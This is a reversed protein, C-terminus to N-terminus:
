VCGKETIQDKDKAILTKLAKVAINMSHELGTEYDYGMIAGSRIGRISSVIFLASAEMESGMVNAKEWARWRSLLYDSNPMSEPDHQGYFSDKCQVIGEAFVYGLEECANCMANVVARNAIAPYEVPVYQLTTGEDRVAGTVILGEYKSNKSEECVKGCTGVRIITDTGCHILEEVAIATSSAGMGTSCVTVMEGDLMGTWTKHERAHAVLRPNELYQAIVDTRFPDGPLLVYRGIDEAKCRLHKQLGEKTTLNKSQM